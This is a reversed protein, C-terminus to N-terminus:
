YLQKVSRGLNLKGRKGIAVQCVVRLNRETIYNVLEIKKRITRLSKNEFVIKLRVQDKQLNLMSTEKTFEPTILEKDVYLKFAANEMKTFVMLESNQSSVSLTCSSLLIGFLFIWSWM